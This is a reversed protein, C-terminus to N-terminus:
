SAAGPVIVPKIDRMERMEVLAETLGELPYRKGVVANWDVGGPNAVMFQMAKHFADIDGSFSGLVSLGRNIIFHPEIEQVGAGTAGILVYRGARAAMRLGEGVAGRGGSAEFTVDAGHGDTLRMVEELRADPDLEEISITDTAGWARAVELRDAPAGIAIIQRPSHAAAMAVCFLGVPGTGQVLVRDQADIRGARELANVVTRGACTAVSALDTALEDPVRLRGAKPFVYSYEAFMGGFHPPRAASTLMGLRRNPCLETQKLVKCAWCHGCTESAWVVRDGLAITTGVSDLGAGSGIAVVRGVGEHGLILPLEVPLVGEYAGQWGHVDSGCITTAEIAVVLAGPEAEPLPYEVIELPAGYERVIAARGTETGAM